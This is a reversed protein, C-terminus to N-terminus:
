YKMVLVGAKLVNKTDISLGHDKRMTIVPTVCLKIHVHERQLVHPDAQSDLAEHMECSFRANVDNFVHQFTLRSQLVKASMDWATSAIVSIDYVADKAVKSDKDHPLFAALMDKLQDTHSTIKHSRFRAADAGEVIDTILKARRDILTQREHTKSPDITQLEKELRELKEDSDKSYDSWAKPALMSTFIYQFILRQIIYPRSRRDKLLHLAHEGRASEQDNACIRCVYDWLYGNVQAQIRAKWDGDIAPLDHFYQVCFGRIMSFLTNFEEAWKLAEPDEPDTRQVPRPTDRKREKPSGKEDVNFRDGPRLEISHRSSASTAASQHRQHPGAHMAAGPLFPPVAQYQHYAYPGGAYYFGGPHVYGPRNAVAHTGTSRDNTPQVSSSSASSSHGSRPALPGIPPRKLQEMAAAREQPDHHVQLWLNRKNNVQEQLITRTAESQRLQEKLSQITKGDEDNKAVLVSMAKETKKSREKWDELEAQLDRIKAEVGRNGPVVSNVATQVKKLEAALTENAQSLKVTNKVLEQVDYDFSTLFERSLAPQRYLGGRLGWVRTQVKQIQDRHVKQTPHIGEEDPNLNLGQTASIFAQTTAAPLVPHGPAAAVPPVPITGVPAPMFPPPVFPPQVFPPPGFPPPGFPSPAYVPMGPHRPPAVGPGPYAPPPVMGGPPNPPRFAPRSSSRHPRRPEQANLGQDSPTRANNRAPLGAAPMPRNALNVRPPYGTADEPRLTRREPVCASPAAGGEAGAAPGGAGGAKQPAPGSM